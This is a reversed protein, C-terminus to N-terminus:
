DRSRHVPDLRFSFRRPHRPSTERTRPTRISRRSVHRPSFRRVSHNSRLAPGPHPTRRPRSRPRNNNRRPRRRWRRHFASRAASFCNHIVRPRLRIHISLPFRPAVRLHHSALSASFYAFPPLASCRYASQSSALTQAEPLTHPPPKPQTAFNQPQRASHPLPLPSVERGVRPAVPCRIRSRSALASRRSIRRRPFRSRMRRRWRPRRRARHSRM